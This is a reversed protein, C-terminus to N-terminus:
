IERWGSLRLFVRMTQVMNFNQQSWYFTTFQDVASDGHLNQEIVMEYPGLREQKDTEDVIMGGYIFARSYKKFTVGVNKGTLLIIGDWRFTGGIELDGDEIILLGAGSTNGSIKVTTFRDAPDPTGRIYTITPKTVTGLNLGGCVSPNQCMGNDVVVPRAPNAPMVSRGARSRVQRIFDAIKQPTLQDNPSLPDQSPITYEGECPCNEDSGRAIPVCCPQRQDRGTMENKHHRTLSDEVHQEFTKGTTPNVGSAVTIGFKLPGTGRSGDRNYDVGNVHLHATGGPDIDAQRGPFNLAGPMPPLPIWSVVVQIQRTVGRYTGSATVILIGNTDTTAGGPDPGVQGTLVGDGVQSDNRVQVAFRGLAPSGPIIEEGGPRTMVGNNTALFGNWDANTGLRDFGWEIGADAVFRAQTVDALNASIAPEMGAMSLFTLLLGSLM